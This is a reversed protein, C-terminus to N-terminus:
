VRLTPEFYGYSTPFILRTGNAIMKEMVREVEASEPIKEVISTEIQKPEATEMFKRGQDHAYNYGWDTVPGVTIFGVKLPTKDSVSALVLPQCAVMAFGLLISSVVFRRM